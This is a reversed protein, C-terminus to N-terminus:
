FPAKQGTPVRSSSAIIGKEYSSLSSKKAFLSEKQQVANSASESKAEVFSQALKGNKSELVLKGYFEIGPNKMCSRVLELADIYEAQDDLYRKNHPYAAVFVQEKAEALGHQLKEVVKNLFPIEKLSDANIEAKESVTVDSSSERVTGVEHYERSSQLGLMQPDNIIHGLDM